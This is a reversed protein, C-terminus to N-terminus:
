VNPPARPQCPASGFPKDPLWPVGDLYNRLMVAGIPLLPTTATLSSGFASTWYVRDREEPSLEALGQPSPDM